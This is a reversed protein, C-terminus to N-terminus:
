VLVMRTTAALSVSEIVAGGLGASEDIGSWECGSYIVRQGPKAIVLTFASLEHFDVGDGLAEDLLQVRALEIQYRLRGSAVGVPERSGFAEIPRSERLTRAQYSQAVALRRGNVEISIEASTTFEIM